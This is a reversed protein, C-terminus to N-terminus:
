VLREMFKEILSLSEEWEDMRNITFGHHSKTFRKCTVSVGARSLKMAFEEDEFCLSDLGASMILTEPFGRLQEEEAFLPSVYPNKAAEGECYFANYIRATEAPMDGEIRTKLVPDTYLDTPFFEAILGKPQFERTEGAKMCVTVALNGGASHGILFIRNTDVELEKSHEFAYKVVQYAEDVAKPFPNEPALSYDVDWVLANFKEAMRSCFVRDKDQRGKM